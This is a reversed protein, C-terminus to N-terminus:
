PLYDLFERLAPDLVYQSSKPTIRYAYGGDHAVEDVLGKEVLAGAYRKFKSTELNCARMIHSPLKPRQPDDALYRLMQYYINHRTRYDHVRHYALFAFVLTAFVWSMNQMYVETVLVIPPLTQTSLSTEETTLTRVSQVPSRLTLTSTSYTIRTVYATSTAVQTEVRTVKHTVKVVESQGGPGEFLEVSSPRTRFGHPKSSKTHETIKTSVVTVKTTYTSTLTETSTSGTTETRFQTATSIWTSSEVRTLKVPNVQEPQVPSAVWPGLVAALILAICVVFLLRFALRV